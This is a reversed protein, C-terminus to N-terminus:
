CLKCTGDGTWYTGPKCLAQHRGTQDKCQFGPPCQLCFTMGIESYWGNGTPCSLPAAITTPAYKGVPSVECHMMGDISWYGPPCPVQKDWQAAPCAMGKPCPV